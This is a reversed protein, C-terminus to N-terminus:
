IDDIDEGTKHESKEKEAPTMANDPGIKMTEWNVTSTFSRM